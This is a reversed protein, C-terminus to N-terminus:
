QTRRFEIPRGLVPKLQCMKRLFSQWFDWGGPAEKGRQWAHAELIRMTDVNEAGGQPFSYKRWGKM